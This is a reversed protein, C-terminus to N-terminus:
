LFRSGNKCERGLKKPWICKQMDVHTSKISVCKFGKYVKEDMIVFVSFHMGLVFAKFFKRWVLIVECTMISKLAVIILNEREDKVYAIIKNEL